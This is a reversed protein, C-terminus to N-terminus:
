NPVGMEIQLLSLREKRRTRGPIQFTSRSQFPKSESESSEMHRCAYIMIVNNALLKVLILM